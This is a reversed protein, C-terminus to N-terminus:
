EYENNTYNKWNKEITIITVDYSRKDACLKKKLFAASVANKM